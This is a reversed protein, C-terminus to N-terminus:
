FAYTIALLFYRGPKYRTYINDGEYYTQGRSNQVPYEKNYRQNYDHDEVIRYSQDLLNQISLKVKLSRVIRQTISFDLLHMPLQLLDPRTSLYVLSDQATELVDKSAASKAYIVPGNVNYTFGIKTGIGPHEYFLGANFVYPAQGQLARGDVVLTDPGSRTYHNTIKRETSSKILAGNLVINLRRFFSGGLFALSKKIEAELGYVTASQANAFTITTFNLPDAYGNKESRMREIPDQLKKYFVGLNFTEQQDAQRPYYELRLDFNDITASVVNSNGMILENNAFDFDNYPTLERFEPRNVTRGWGTRAVLVDNPRYSFNFSPLVSTKPHSIYVTSLAGNSASIAGALQQKDYEVRLGGNLSLKEDATKWEGMGYFANYQESAVYRDVPSTAEYVQLGSNNEPFFAPSWLTSLDQLRFRVLSPNSMGYGLDWGGAGNEGSPTDIENPALGARNIRFFRRSVDRHKFSQFTGAKFLAQKSLHFTYDISGNYVHENNKVFLRSIMGIYGDTLLGNTGIATYAQEKPEGAARFQTWFHSIRQDPVSQRDFTYGLNWELSQPYKQGWRHTGGINGSYLIRQQFSLLINKNRNNQFNSSDLSPIVNAQQDEISTMRRGENVFFNKFQLTHHPNLRLTLNELINIKGTETSQRATGRKNKEDLNLDRESTAFADTNGSQRYIDFNTTEKTFTVASLNYLWAKGLHFANYSNIFLQLDPTSTRRLPALVSSFENLVAGKSQNDTNKGSQLYAPTLNPMKRAGDDFGLWDYKGGQYSNIDALTSGPRHAVQIGIDLHRVPVANKTYVKVAAGAFEGNLDPRPSKYVLIKDIISSPLLDYAFAKSYIETSPALNDNLYTLNYRENMGRVVIFRNDVVTVGSIRKVVEAANRDATRNILENSIGSVVGTAGRLENLLEKETSHTVAKVKRPGSQVVVEDLTKGAQMKIDAVTEKDGQLQLSAINKKQYGTYTVVLSYTGAPVKAFHYFGKDDSIVTLSAEPLSITAGPLPQATEFDVIRGKLGGNRRPQSTEQRPASGKVTIAINNDLLTYELNAKQQLVTLAKGLPLQQWHIDHVIIASLKPKDYSFVYRAQQQLSAIIDAVSIQKAQLSVNGALRDVQASLHNAGLCLLLLLLLQQRISRYRRWGSSVNTM